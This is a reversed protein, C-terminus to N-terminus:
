NNRWNSFNVLARIRRKGPAVTIDCLAITTVVARAIGNLIRIIVHGASQENVKARTPSMKGGETTKSSLEFVFPLLMVLSEM